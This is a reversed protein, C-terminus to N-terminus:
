WRAQRGLLEVLHAHRRWRCRGHKWSVACPGSPLMRFLRRHTNEEPQRGAGATPLSCTGRDVYGAAPETSRHAGAASGFGSWSGAAAPDAALAGVLRHRAFRVPSRPSFVSAGPYARGGDASGGHASYTGPYRTCGRQAAASHSPARGLRGQRMQCEPHVPAAQSNDCRIRNRTVAMTCGPFSGAQASATAVGDAARGSDGASGRAVLSRVRRYNRCRGRARGGAPRPGGTGSWSEPSVRRDAASAARAVGLDHPDLGDGLDRRAEERGDAPASSKVQELISQNHRHVPVRGM